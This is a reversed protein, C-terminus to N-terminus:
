HASDFYYRFRTKELMANGVRHCWANGHKNEIDSKGWVGIAVSWPIWGTHVPVLLLSYLIGHSWTGM